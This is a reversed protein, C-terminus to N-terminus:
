RNGGHHGSRAPKAGGGFAARGPVSAARGPLARPPGAAPAGPKAKAKQDTPQTGKPTVRGGTKKKATM